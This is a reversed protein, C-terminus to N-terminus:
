TLIVSVVAEKHTPFLYLPLNSSEDAFFGLEVLLRNASLSDTTIIVLPSKSEEAATCIALAKSSGYLSGWYCREGPKDPLKPHLPSLRIDASM